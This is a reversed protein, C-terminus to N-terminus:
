RRKRNWVALFDAKEKVGLGVRKVRGLRALAEGIKDLVRTGESTLSLTLTADDDEAGRTLPISMADDDDDDNDDEPGATNHTTSTSNYEPGLTDLFNTAYSNPPKLATATATATATTPMALTGAASTKRRVGVTEQREKTKPAPAAISATNYM